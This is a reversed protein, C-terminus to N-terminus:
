PIFYMPNPLLFGHDAYGGTMDSVQDGISLAIQWGARELLQRRQAKYVAATLDYEAPTRLILYRYDGLGLRALCTATAARDPVKRGTIMALEVGRAHAHKLLAVTQAIAPNTCNAMWVAEAAPLYQWDVTEQRYFPYWSVITDDIDSVIMAHCRQVKAVSAHPGCRQDLWRDLYVRAQAVTDRIDATYGGSQRLAVVSPGLTQPVMYAAPAALPPLHQDSGTIAMGHDIAGYQYQVVAAPAAPAALALAVIALLVIRLRM